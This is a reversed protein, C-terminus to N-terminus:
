PPVPRVGGRRGLRFGVRYLDPMNVRGDRMRTLVGLQELDERLGPWGQSLHEPPLREGGLDEPPTVGFDEVWLREIENFACPVALGELPNMLRTVWPYDEALEDVRNASADQVSLKIDEYHLAFDHDPHNEGAYRAAKHLALLFSRPSTHGYGDALHGVIWNYTIGRRHDRGMWKGALASFLERLANEDRKVAEPLSWVGSLIEVPPEGLSQRHLDRFLQGHEDPGNCLYQWLLGHLDTRKWFLEARGATLKSADPFNTVKRGKYQDERLFVKFHLNRYPTLSLIEQLLDRIIIDMTSWDATIRDLADFLILSHTNNRAFHEVANQIKGARDEPNDRCYDIWLPWPQNAALPNDEQWSLLARTIIAKWILAPSDYTQLLSQFTDANPYWEPRPKEGYGTHVRMGPLYPVRVRDAVMRRVEDEELAASWFSKGVGRGGIM